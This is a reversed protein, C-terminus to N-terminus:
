PKPDGTKRPSAPEFTRTMDEVGTIVPEDVRNDLLRGPAERLTKTDLDTPSVKFWPSGAAARQGIEIIQWILMGDVAVLIALILAVVGIILGQGFGVSKMVAMAGLMIGLIAITAVVLAWVTSEIRKELPESHDPHQAFNLSTGCRTCYSLQQETGCSPCFM